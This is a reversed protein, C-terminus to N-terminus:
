SLKLCFHLCKRKLTESVPTPPTSHEVNLFFVAFGFDEIVFKELDLKNWEMQILVMTAYHVMELKTYMKCGDSFSPLIEAAKKFSRCMKYGAIQM